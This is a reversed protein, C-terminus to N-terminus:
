RNADVWRTMKREFVLQDFEWARDVCDSTKLSDVNDVANRMSVPEFEDLLIGTKGHVVTESAGGIARAIVPTGAAMAEVPMLGFDEVPPFVYALARVYLERLLQASPRVVFQVSAGTREALAKLIPAHPGDGALVVPVGAAKGLLIVDELRKYPIFRSAGLVYVDPLSQLIGEEAPTWDQAKNTYFAM